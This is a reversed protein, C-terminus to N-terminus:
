GNKRNGFLFLLAMVVGILGCWLIVAPLKALVALMVAVLLVGITFFVLQNISM